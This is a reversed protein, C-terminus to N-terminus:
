LGKSPPEPDAAYVLREAPASHPWASLRSSGALQYNTVRDVVATLVERGWLTTTTMGQKRHDLQDLRLLDFRSPQCSCSSPALPCRARLRAASCLGLRSPGPFNGRRTSSSLARPSITCTM